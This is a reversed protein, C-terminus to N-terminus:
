ICCAQTRRSCLRMVVSEGHQTPMTSIRIDIAENRLAQYQIPWRAALRKESIDLGSMLKLRLVLAALFKQADAETQIRLVGDIRFRIICHSSEQPEIRSHRLRAAKLAEEFVTNLLKVVPADEAGATL